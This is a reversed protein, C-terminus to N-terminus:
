IKREGHHKKGNLLRFTHIALLFNKQAFSKHLFLPFTRCLMMLVEMGSIPPPTNEDSLFLDLIGRKKRENL